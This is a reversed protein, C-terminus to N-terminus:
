MDKWKFSLLVRYLFCILNGEKRVEEGGGERGGKGEKREEKRGDKRGERRGKKKKREKGKKKLNYKRILSWNSFSLAVQYSTWPWM